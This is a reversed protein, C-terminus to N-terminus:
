VSIEMTPTARITLTQASTETAVVVYYLDLPSHDIRETYSTQAGVVISGITSAGSNLRGVLAFRCRRTDDDLNASGQVDAITHTGTGADTTAIGGGGAIALARSTYLEFTNTGTDEVWYNTLLAFEAPLTGSTTLQFPGDGTLMAHSNATNVASSGSATFTDDAVTVPGLRVSYLSAGTITEAADGEFDLEFEPYSAFWQEDGVRRGAADRGGLDTRWGTVDLWNATTAAALADSEATISVALEPLAV